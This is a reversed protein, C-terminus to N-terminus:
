TRSKEDHFMNYIVAQRKLVDLLEGQEELYKKMACPRRGGDPGLEIGHFDDEAKKLFYGRYAPSKFQMIASKLSSYLNSVGDPLM